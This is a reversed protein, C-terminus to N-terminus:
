VMTWYLLTHLSLLEYCGDEESDGERREVGGRARRQCKDNV